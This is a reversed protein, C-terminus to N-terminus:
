AQAPHTYAEYFAAEGGHMYLQLILNLMMGLTLGIVQGLLGLLLSRVLTLLLSWGIYSLQLGFLELKRTRMIEGSRRICALVGTEPQDALVYAAMAYRYAARLGLVLAAIMGIFLLPLAAGVPLFMAAIMAAYGPLIWLLVKVCTLLSVGLARLGWRCRGMATGVTFDEKRLALLLAYRLPLGLVPSLVLTVTMLPFLVPGKEELFVACQSYFGDMLEQYATSLADGTLGSSELADMQATLDDLLVTPDSDTMLTGVTYLLSPLMAILGIVAMLSLLPFVAQRARRRLEVNPVFPRMM